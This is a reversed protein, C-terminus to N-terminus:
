SFCFCQDPSVFGIQFGFWNKTSIAAMFQLLAIIEGGVQPKAMALQLDYSLYRGIISSRVKTPENILKYDDNVIM